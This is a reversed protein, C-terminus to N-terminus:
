GGLATIVLDCGSLEDIVEGPAVFSFSPKRTHLVSAGAGRVLDAAAALIVDAQEKSNDLFGVRLGRLSRPRPAATFRPTISAGRPDYLEIM